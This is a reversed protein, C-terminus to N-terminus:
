GTATMYKIQGLGERKNEQNRQMKDEEKMRQNSLKIEKKIGNRVQVSTHKKQETLVKESM